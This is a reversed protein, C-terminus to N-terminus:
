FLPREVDNKKSTLATIASMFIHENYDAAETLVDTNGNANLLERMSTVANFNALAGEYNKDGYMLRGANSVYSSAEVLGTIAENKHWKKTGKEMAMKFAEFAKLGASLDDSEYTPDQIKKNVAMRVVENYIEGKTQWLKIQNKEEISSAADSALDIAAAADILNTAKKAADTEQQYKTMAKTADKLATMGDQATVFSVTLLLSFLGLLLKKM